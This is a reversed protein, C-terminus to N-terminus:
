LKEQYGAISIGDTHSIKLNVRSYEAFSPTQWIYPYKVPNLILFKCRGMYIGVSNQPNNILVVEPEESSSTNKLIADIPQWTEDDTCESLGTYRDLGTGTSYVLYTADLEYGGEASIFFAANTKTFFLAINESTKHLYFRPFKLNDEDILKRDVPEWSIDLM